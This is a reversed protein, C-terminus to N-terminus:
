LFRFDVPVDKRDQACRQLGVGDKALSRVIDEELAVIESTPFPDADVQGLALKVLLEQTGAKRAYNMVSDHARRPRAVGLRM